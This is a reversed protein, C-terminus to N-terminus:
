TPSLAPCSEGDANTRAPACRPESVPSHRARLACASQDVGDPIIRQYAARILDVQNHKDLTQVHREINLVGLVQWGRSRM